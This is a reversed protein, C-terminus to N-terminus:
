NCEKLPEYTNGGREMLEAFQCIHFLNNGIEAHYGDIYRCVFTRDDGHQNHIRIKGGDPLRFLEDYSSSIFRIGEAAREIHQGLWVRLYCFVSIDAGSEGDQNVRLFYSYQEADYHAACFGEQEPIRDLDGVSGFAKRFDNLSHLPMNDMRLAAMLASLSDLFADTCLERRREHWQETDKGDATLVVDLRGILGCQASIQTSQEASYLCYPWGTSGVSFYHGHSSFSNLM